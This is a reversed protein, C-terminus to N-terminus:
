FIVSAFFVAAAEKTKRIENAIGFGLIGISTRGDAKGSSGTTCRRYSRGDIFRHGGNFRIASGYFQSRRFIFVLPPAYGAQIVVVIDGKAIIFLHLVLIQDM